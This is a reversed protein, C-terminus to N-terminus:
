NFIPKGTYEVSVADLGKRIVEARDVPKNEAKVVEVILDNVQKFEQETVALTFFKRKDKKEM